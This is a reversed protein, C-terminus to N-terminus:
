NSIKRTGRIWRIALFGATHALGPISGYDLLLPLWEYPQMQPVEHLALVGMVGGLLPVWSQHPQPERRITERWFVRWNMGGIWAFGAFCATAVMIHLANM